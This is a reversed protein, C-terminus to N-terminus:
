RRVEEDFIENKFNIEHRVGECEGVRWVRDVKSVSQM